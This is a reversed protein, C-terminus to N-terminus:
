LQMRTESCRDTVNDARATEQTEADLRTLHTSCNMSNRM